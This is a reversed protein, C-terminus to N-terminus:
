TRTGCARTARWCFCPARTTWYGGQALVLQEVAAVEEATLTLIEPYHRQWTLRQYQTSAHYVRDAAWKMFRKLRVFQKAITNDTQGLQLLCSAFRDGLAPAIAAFDLVGLRAQEGFESLHRGSAASAQATRPQGQTRSQRIFEEFRQWFTPRPADTEQTTPAAPAPAVAARLDAAPLKGTARHQAYCTLLRAEVTDLADNTM